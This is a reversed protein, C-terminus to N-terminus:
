FLGGWHPTLYLSQYFFIEQSRSAISDKGQMRGLRYADAIGIFWSIILVIWAISLLHTDTGAPQKSILEAIATVDLQVEGVKIKDAIELAREAVRYTVVYLSLLAAGVL